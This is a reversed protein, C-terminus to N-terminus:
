SIEKQTTDDAVPHGPALPDAPDSTDGAKRWNAAQALLGSGLDFVELHGAHERTHVPLVGAPLDTLGHLAAEQETARRWRPAQGAQEPTVKIKGNAPVHISDGDLRLDVAGYPNVNEIEVHFAV